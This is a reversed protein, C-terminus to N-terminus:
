DNVSNKRPNYSLDRMSISTEEDNDDDNSFKKLNKKAYLKKKM